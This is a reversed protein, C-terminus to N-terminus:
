GPTPQRLRVSVAHCAAPGEAQEIIRHNKVRLAIHTDDTATRLGAARAITGDRDLAVSLGTLAESPVSSRLAELVESLVFRALPTREAPDDTVLVLSLSHADPAARLAQEIGAAQRLGLIAVVGDEEWEMPTNTVLDTVDTPPEWAHDIARTAPVISEHPPTWRDEFDTAALAECTALTTFPDIFGPASASLSDTSHLVTLLASAARVAREGPQDPDLHELARALIIADLQLLAACADRLDQDERIEAYLDSTLHEIQSADGHGGTPLRALWAQALSVVAEDRSSATPTPPSKVTLVDAAVTLGLARKSPFNSYVAGRTLEARAAISNIKAERYGVQAFEERAADLIRERNRMQQEARRGVAM